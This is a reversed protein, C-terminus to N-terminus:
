QEMKYVIPITVNLEQLDVDSPFNKYPATSRAIRLADEDFIEHGSSEKVLAYALTGDNLILMGVKVTGEWSYEEAQKPYAIAQAIKQQVGQIYGMMEQPIGAYYPLNKVSFNSTNTSQVPVHSEAAENKGEMKEYEPNNRNKALVYPTVSIVMEQDIDPTPTSKSRFLLGIIPINSVFPVKKLLTARNQKILGALVITQGDDLYLHTNASRTSFAVDQGVANAADVDSVEVNMVIDIKEKKITPTITMNIGYSKFSVNEQTGAASSTSTRIPIEGGVLFGAEEGSVVVLKPQSLVKAKGEQLLANIQAVLASQNSRYFKGIKFYDGISGDSVPQKELYSPSFSGSSTTTFSGDGSDQQEGTSWEIGLSRTLSTSLETVQLDIQILDQVTDEKVLNIVKDGFSEIIQDFHEKKHEPVDGLVIVKGEKENLTLEIEHINASELFEKIRKRTVELMQASVHFTIARKGHDDWIFLTTEGEERGVLIVEKEEASIIDAVSENTLSLRTLSYVELSILEGTVMHIEDTYISDFSEGYDALSTGAAFMLFILLMGNFIMIKRLFSYIKM